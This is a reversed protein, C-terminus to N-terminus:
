FGPEYIRVANEFIIEKDFSMKKFQENTFMEMQDTFHPSDVNASAGYAHVSYVEVGEESFKIAQIYSDGGTVKFIGKKEDILEADAARPVERLGSAPFSVDGRIHRQIDGLAVNIHGHTKLLFDKAERIAWVADEEKVQEEHIMFLAFPFNTRKILFHHMVLVFGATTNTIDGQFDWNRLKIIADAIDPYEKEDLEYFIRFSNHYTGNKVYGKDFKIQNFAEWSMTEEMNEFTRQFYEGRNYNFRQLGIFDGEWECGSGSAILPTQNANFVYGCEPNILTPKSEFELVEVWKNDSTIGAIPQSWDLNKDRDPIRGASHFMINGEVDAYVINFLPLADMQLTNTFEDLNKAKNMKYWQEGSRIDKYAPFRIAYYNDEHEIVPGFISVKVNRRIPIGIGLFKVNMRIRREEFDVWEGDLKYATARRNTKLKYIDGFTHYNVTHSWGLYQNAGAFVTIGGPFLGGMINLGEDSVLHAEYWSFRGEKPQHSNNMLYTKGSETRSPALAYANSGRDNPTAYDAIRNNTIAELAMGVGGMLSTILVYGKVVDKGTMPFGKRLLVESRNKSAYKNLGASYADLLYRYEESLDKEYRKEVLSDIGLAKVAYDFLVGERGQYRSLMGKAALLNLQINYFDDEAHAWALGYIADADTKGYIHPVGWQDRVITTSGEEYVYSGIAKTQFLFFALISILSCRILM